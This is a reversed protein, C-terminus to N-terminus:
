EGAGDLDVNKMANLTTMWESALRGKVGNADDQASKKGAAFSQLIDKDTYLRENDGAAPRLVVELAARIVVAMKDDVAIWGLSLIDNHKIQQVPGWKLLIQKASALTDPKTEVAAPTEEGKSYEEMLAKIDGQLSRLQDAMAFLVGQDHTLDHGLTARFLNESTMGAIEAKVAEMELQIQLLRATFFEQKM